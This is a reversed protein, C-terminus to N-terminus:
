SAAGFDCRLTLEHRPAAYVAESCRDLRDRGILVVPWARQQEIRKAVVIDDAEAPDPPFDFRGAFDATRVPLRAFGFGAISSPRSFALMRTPRMVGFAGARDQGGPELKGGYSRALIVGASFTATTESRSLSFQVFLRDKGYSLGTEPGHEDDDDIMFRASQGAPARNARVFRITAYPLLTVGIEGDVGPCCPREHTAATVLMNLGNMRIPMAAQMGKLVERGVEAEFGPEFAFDRSPPKRRLREAAEPNLQVLRKQELAVRLRLPVKGVSLEIVPDDMDLVLEGRLPAPGKIRTAAAPDAGAILVSALLATALRAPRGARPETRAATAAITHLAPM